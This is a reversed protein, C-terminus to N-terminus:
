NCTAVVSAGDSSITRSNAATVASSRRKRSTRGRSRACSAAIVPAPILTYATRRRMATVAAIARTTQGSRAMAQRRQQQKQCRQSSRLIKHGSAHNQGATAASRAWDSDLLDPLHEKKKAPERLMSCRDNLGPLEVLSTTIFFSQSDPSEMDAALNASTTPQRPTAARDKVGIVTWASPVHELPAM